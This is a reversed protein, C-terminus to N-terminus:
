INDYFSELFEKTYKREDQLKFNLSNNKIYNTKINNNKIPNLNQVEQPKFDLGRSTYKQVEQPKFNISGSTYKQVEQLKIEKSRSIKSNIGKGIKIKGLYIRNPKSFGIREEKILNCTKLENFVKVVTAKSIKLESMIEKRTYILYIQKKENVWGNMRSLELRDLLLTYAIKSELSLNQHYYPNSFLEKPMQYFKFTFNDDITFIDIENELM